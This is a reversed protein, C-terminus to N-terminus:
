ILLKKHQKKKFDPQKNAEGPFCKVWEQAGNESLRDYTNQHKWTETNKKKKLSELICGSNPGVTYNLTVTYCYFELRIWTEFSM